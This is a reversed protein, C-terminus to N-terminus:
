RLANKRLPPTDSYNDVEITLGRKVGYSFSKGRNHTHMPDTDQNPVISIDVISSQRELTECVSKSAKLTEQEFKVEKGPRQLSKEM